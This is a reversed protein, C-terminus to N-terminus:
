SSHPGAQITKFSLNGETAIFSCAIFALSLVSYNELNLDQFHNYVFM